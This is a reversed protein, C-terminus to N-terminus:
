RVLLLEKSDVFGGATTRCIYIGSADWKVEYRGTGRKGDMLVTVERGLLDYVVIRTHSAGPLQRSDNSQVPEPLEPQARIANAGVSTPLEM